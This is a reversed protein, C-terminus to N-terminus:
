CQQKRVCREGLLPKDELGVRCNGDILLSQTCIPFQAGGAVCVSFTFDDIQRRACDVLFLLNEPSPTLAGLVGLVFQIYVPKKTWGAQIVFAVNNVMGADYAEFEAKTGREEFVACYERLSKFTNSLIADETKELRDKEWGFQWEKYRSALPFLAFNISGANLSALQPRYLRVPAVREETTM